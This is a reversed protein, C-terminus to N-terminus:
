RTAAPRRWRSGACTRGSPCDARTELGLTETYFRLATDQDAVPIIVNALKTFM